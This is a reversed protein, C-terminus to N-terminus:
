REFVLINRWVIVIGSIIKDHFLVTFVQRKYVDLHTYSVAEPTIMNISAFFKIDTVLYHFVLHDFIYYSSKLQRTARLYDQQVEALQPSIVVERFPKLADIHSYQYMWKFLYFRTINSYYYAFSRPLINTSQGAEWDAGDKVINLM